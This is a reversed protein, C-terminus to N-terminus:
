PLSLKRSLRPMKRNLCIFLYIFLFLRSLYVSFAHACVERQRKKEQRLIVAAPTRDILKEKEVDRVTPQRVVSSHLYGEGVKTNRFQTQDVVSGKEVGQDRQREEHMEVMLMDARVAETRRATQATPRLFAPIDEEEDSDRDREM